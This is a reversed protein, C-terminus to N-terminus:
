VTTPPVKLDFINHVSLQRLVEKKESTSVIFGGYKIEKDESSLDSIRDLEYDISTATKRAVGLIKSYTNESGPDGKHLAPDYISKAIDEASIPDNYTGSLAENIRVSLKEILNSLNLFRSKGGRPFKIGKYLGILSYDAAGKIGIIDAREFPAIEAEGSPYASTLNRQIEDGFTGALGFDIFAELLDYTSFGCLIIDTITKSVLYENPGMTQSPTSESSKGTIKSENDRFQRLIANYARTGKRVAIKRPNLITIEETSPIYSYKYINQSFRNYDDLSTSDDLSLEEQRKKQDIDDWVIQDISDTAELIIQRILGRIKMESIIM